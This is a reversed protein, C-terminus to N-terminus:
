PEYDDYCARRELISDFSVLNIRGSFTRRFRFTNEIKWNGM